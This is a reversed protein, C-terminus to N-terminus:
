EPLSRAAAMGSGLAQERLAKAMAPSSAKLKLYAAAALPGNGEVLHSMTVLGLAPAMNPQKELLKEAHERAKQPLRAGLYAQALYFRADAATPALSLAKELSQIARGLNRSRLQAEGLNIWGNSLNPDLRVATELAEVAEPLRGLKTLAYGKGSWAQVNVPDTELARIEYGLAGENDGKAGLAKAMTLCMRVLKPDAAEARRLIKLAEDPSGMGILAEGWSALEDPSMGVLGDLKQFAMGAERPRGLALYTLASMRWAQANGQDLEVARRADDLAPQLRKLELRAAARNALNGANRPALQVAKDFANEGEQVRGLRMLVAGLGTWAEEGEPMLAVAKRMAEEAPGLRGRNLEGLGLALQTKGADRGAVDQGQALRSAEEVKGSRAYLEALRQRAAMDADGLKVATALARAAEVSNGLKDEIMGLVRWSEARQPYRRIAEKIQTRAEPLRGEAFCWRAREYPPEVSFPFRKEGQTLAKEAEDRSGRAHLLSALQFWSQTYNEDLELAHRVSAEAETDQKLGRLAEGLMAAALAARPQATAWARAHSALEASKTARSLAEAEAIWPREPAPPTLAAPPADGALLIAAVSDASLTMNFNQGTGLVAKTLGVLQGERDFLGGGSSGPSQPATTVLYPHPRKQEATAVLGASVALGFGLPNGVAFVPEGVVLRAGPRLKVPSVELGSVSLLCLDLAANQRVWKGELEVGGSFVRIAAADRIVHCNTAVQGKGVVVGSGQVEVVGKDDASKITVVSPSVAAFVREADAPTAAAASGAWGLAGLSALLFVAKM